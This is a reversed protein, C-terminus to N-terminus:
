VVAVTVLIQQILDLDEVSNSRIALFGPAIPSEEGVEGIRVIAFHYESMSTKSSDSVAYIKYTLSGVGKEETLEGNTIYGSEVIQSSFTDEYSGFNTLWEGLAYEFNDQFMGTFDIDIKQNLKSTTHVDFMGGSERDILVEWDAPYSVSFHPNIFSNDYEYVELELIEEQSEVEEVNSNADIENVGPENVMTTSTNTKEEDDSLSFVLLGIGVGLGLILVVLLGWLFVKKM